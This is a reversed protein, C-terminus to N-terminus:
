LKSSDIKKKDLLLKEQEIIDQLSSDIYSVTLTWKGQYAMCTLNIIRDGHKAEFKWVRRLIKPIVTEYESYKERLSSILANRIRDSGCNTKVFKDVEIRHIRKSYPLVDFEVRDFFDDKFDSLEGEEKGQPWNPIVEGLKLGFAGTIPQAYANFHAFCLLTAFLNIFVKKFKFGVQM